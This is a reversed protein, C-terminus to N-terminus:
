NIDYARRRTSPAEWGLPKRRACADLTVWEKRSRMFVQPFIHRYAEGQGPIAIVVFRVRYGISMLLAAIYGSVDDCDGQMMGLIKIERDVIEPSKIRELFTPDALFRYHALVFDFVKQVECAESRELCSAVISEARQRLEVNNSVSFRVAYVMANVTQTIGMDGPMLSGMFSM